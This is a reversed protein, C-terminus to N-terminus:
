IARDPRLFSATVGGLITVRERPDRAAGAVAVGAGAVIAAVVPDALEAAGVGATDAALPLSSLAAPMAFRALAILKISAVTDLNSARTAPTSVALAAVPDARATAVSSSSGVDTAVWADGPIASLSVVVALVSTAVLAAILTLSSSSSFPRSSLRACHQTTVTRGVM